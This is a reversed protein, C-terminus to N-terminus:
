IDVETSQLPAAEAVELAPTDVLRNKHEGSKELLREDEEGVEEGDGEEGYPDKEAFGGERSEEEEGVVGEHNEPCSTHHDEWVDKGLDPALVRQREKGAGGLMKWRVEFIGIGSRKIFMNCQGM